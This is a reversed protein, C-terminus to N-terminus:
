AFCLLCSGLPPSLVFRDISILATSTHPSHIALGRNAWLCPIGAISDAAVSHSVVCRMEDRATEKKRHRSRENGLSVNSSSFEIAHTEGTFEAGGASVAVAASGAEEEGGGGVFARAQVRAWAVRRAGGGGDGREQTAM